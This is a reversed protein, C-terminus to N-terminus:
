PSVFHCRFVESKQKRLEVSLWNVSVSLVQTICSLELHIKVQMCYVTYMFRPDYVLFAFCHDKKNIKFFLYGTVRLYATEGFM